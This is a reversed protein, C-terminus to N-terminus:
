QTSQKITLPYINYYRYYLKNSALTSRPLSASKARHKYIVDRDHCRIGIVTDCHSIINIIIFVNLVCMTNIGLSDFRRIKHFKGPIITHCEACRVLM